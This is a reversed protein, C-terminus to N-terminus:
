GHNKGCGERDLYHLADNIYSSAQHQWKAGDTSATIRWSSLGARVTAGLAAYFNWLHRPVAARGFEMRYCEFCERALWAVGAHRCEMALFAIEEASDLRRLRADFELCDIIEPETNKILFVHEPRLDGHGDRIHGAQARKELLASNADVYSCQRRLLENIRKEPLAPQARLLQQSWHGLRERLHTVYRGAAFDVTATQAYFRRLKQMLKRIEAPPARDQSAAVLLSQSDALRVMKVLWEVVCGDADLALAGSEDLVLPVVGLYTNKALRRNLRLEDECLQHRAALSSFDFGGQRFPKKMKFVHRETMFLWAHHTQQLSVQRPHERYNGPDSLFSVKDEFSVTGTASTDRASKSATPM